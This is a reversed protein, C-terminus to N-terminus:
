ENDSDEKYKETLRMLKQRIEERIEINDTIEAMDEFEVALKVLANQAVNHVQITCFTDDSCILDYDYGFTDIMTNMFTRKVKIRASPIIRDVFMVSNKYFYDRLSFGRRDM